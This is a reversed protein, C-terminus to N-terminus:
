EFIKITINNDLTDVIQSYVDTNCIIFKAENKYLTNGNWASQVFLELDDTISLVYLDKEVPDIENLTIDLSAITVDPYDCIITKIADMIFASDGYLKVSEYEPHPISSHQLLCDVVTNMSCITEIKMENM